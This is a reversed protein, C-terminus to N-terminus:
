PAGEATPAAVVLEGGARLKVVVTRAPGTPPELVLRGSAEYPTEGGSPIGVPLPARQSDGATGVLQGDLLIRTTPEGEVRLRAPRPQLPVRLEGQAAAERATIERQFPVCCAHEIQITHSRGPSLVFRVVQDGSPVEVGDLLARQAYPRVRVLWEVAPEQSGPRAAGGELVGHSPARPPADAAAPPAPREPALAGGTETGTAADAGGSAPPSPPRQPWWTWGSAVLAVAAVLGGVSWAARRWRRRRSLTRLREAVLTNAPDLALVRDFFGLALAAHGDRLAAEGHQILAAVARSPYEALFAAPDALLRLVEEDPRM